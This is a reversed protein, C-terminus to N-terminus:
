RMELGTTLAAEIMAKTYGVASPQDNIRDLRHLRFDYPEEAALRRMRREEFASGVIRRRSYRFMTKGPRKAIARWVQTLVSYHLGNEIEDILV